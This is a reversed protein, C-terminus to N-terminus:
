SLGSKKEKSAKQREGEEGGELLIIALFRKGKGPATRTEDRWKKAVGKGGRRPFGGNKRKQHAVLSYEREGPPAGTKKKGRVTEIIVGGKGGGEREFSNAACVNGKLGNKKKGGTKRGKKGRRPFFSGGEGEKVILGPGL